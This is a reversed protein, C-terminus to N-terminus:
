KQPAVIIQTGQGGEQTKVYSNMNQMLHSDLVYKLPYVPSVATDLTKPIIVPTSNGQQMYSSVSVIDMTTRYDKQNSPTRDFFAFLGSGKNFTKIDGAPDAYQALTGGLSHGVANVNTPGYEIQLETALSEINNFRPSLFKMGLFVAYVDTWVDGLNATGRAAITVQKSIFNYKGSKMPYEKEFVKTEETSRNRLLKYGFPAMYKEADDLSMYAADMMKLQEIRKKDEPSANKYADTVGTNTGTEVGTARNQIYTQIDPESMGFARMLAIDTEGISRTITRTGNVLDQPSLAATDWYLQQLDERYYAYWNMNPNVPTNNGGFTLDNYNVNLERQKCFRTYDSSDSVYKVNCAAAPVGTGDCNNMVHGMAGRSGPKAPQNSGGCSYGKRSLLDGSNTVARFPTIASTRSDIQRRYTTNWSDRLAFRNRAFESSNQTTQVKQPMQGKVGKGYKSRSYVADSFFWQNM